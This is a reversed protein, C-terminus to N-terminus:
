ALLLMFIAFFAKILLSSMQSLFIVSLIHTLFMFLCKRDIEYFKRYLGGKSLGISAFIHCFFAKILLTSM